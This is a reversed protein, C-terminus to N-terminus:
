TPVGLSSRQFHAPYPTANDNRVGLVVGCLTGPLGVAGSTTTTSSQNRLGSSWGAVFHAQTATTSTDHETAISGSDNISTVGSAGTGTLSAPQGWLVLARVDSATRWDVGGAMVFQASDSDRSILVGGMVGHRSANTRVVSWKHSSTPALNDAQVCTSCTQLALFGWTGSATSTLVVGLTDSYTPTASYTTIYGAFLTAFDTGAAVHDVAADQIWGTGDARYECVVAGSSPRVLARRDGDTPTQSFLDSQTNHTPIAPATVVGLPGDWASIGDWRYDASFVGTDDLLRRLERGVGDTAQLDTLDTYEEHEARRWSTASGVPIIDYTTAQRAAYFVAAKTSVDLATGSFSASGGALPRIDLSAGVRLEPTTASVLTFDCEGDLIPVGGAMRWVGITEDDATVLRAVSGDASAVVPMESALSRPGDSFSRYARCAGYRVECDGRKYLVPVRLQWEYVGKVDTELPPVFPMEGLIAEIHTYNRAKRRLAEAVHDADDGIRKDLERTDGQVSDWAYFMRVVVTKVREANRGRFDHPDSGEGELAFMRQILPGRDDVEDAWGTGTQEVYPLEPRYAPTISAIAAALEDRIDAYTVRAERAGVISTGQMNLTGYRRKLDDDNDFWSGSESFQLLEADRLKMYKEHLEDKRVHRLMLLHYRAAQVLLRRDIVRDPPQHVQSAVWSYLAEEATRRLRLYYGGRTSQAPDIDDLDANRIPISWPSYVIDVTDQHRVTEGNITYRWIARCDRKLSATHTSTLAYTIRIGKLTGGTLAEQLRNVLYITTGNIGDVEPVASRGTAATGLYRRLIAIGTADDVVISDSELNGTTVSASVSDITAATAAVIAGNQNDRLEFTASTPVGIEPPYWEVTFAQGVEAQQISSM